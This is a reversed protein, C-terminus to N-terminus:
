RVLDALASLTVKLSRLVRGIATRPRPRELRSQGLTPELLESEGLRIDMSQWIHREQIQAVLLSLDEQYGQPDTTDEESDQTEPTDEGPERTDVTVDIQIRSLATPSVELAENLLEELQSRVVAIPEGSNLMRVFTEQDFISYSHASQIETSPANDFGTDVDVSFEQLSYVRSTRPSDSCQYLQARCIPCTDNDSLWLALCTRGFVHNCGSVNPVQVPLDDSHYVQLCIICEDEIEKKSLIHEICSELFSSLHHVPPTPSTHPM